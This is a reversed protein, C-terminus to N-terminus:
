NGSVDVQASGGLYGLCIDPHLHRSRIIILPHTPLVATCFLLRTDLFLIPAEARKGREGWVQLQQSSLLVGAGRRRASERKVM